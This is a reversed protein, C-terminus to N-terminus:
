RSCGTIGPAVLAAGVPVVMLAILVARHPPSRVIRLVSVLLGVAILPALLPSIAAMGKM